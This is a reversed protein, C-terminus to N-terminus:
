SYNGSADVVAFSFVALYDDPSPLYKNNANFNSTSNKRIAPLQVTNYIREEANQVFNPINDIFTTEYNETYSTIAAALESYNM